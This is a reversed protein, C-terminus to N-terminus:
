IIELNLEPHFPASTYVVHHSNCRVSVRPLVLRVLAGEGERRSGGGDGPVELPTKCELRICNHKTETQATINRMALCHPKNTVHM